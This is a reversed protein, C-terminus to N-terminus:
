PHAQTLTFWIWGQGIRLRGVWFTGAWRLEDAIGLRPYHIRWLDDTVSCMLLGSVAMMGLIRNTVTTGSFDKGSWVKNGIWALVPHSASHVHGDYRGSPQRGASMSEFFRCLEADTMGWPIM